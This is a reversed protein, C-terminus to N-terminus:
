LLDRIREAMRMSAARYPEPDGEEDWRVGPCGMSVLIFDSGVIFPYRRCTDPRQEYVSCLNGRLFICSGDERMKMKYPAKTLKRELEETPEYFNRHGAQKLRRVDEEYLVVVRDRCCNGCLTCAFGPMRKVRVYDSIIEM